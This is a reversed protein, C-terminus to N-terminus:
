RHEFRSVNHASRPSSTIGPFYQSTSTEAYEVVIAGNAGRSYRWISAGKVLTGDSNGEFSNREEWKGQLCRSVLRVDNGIAKGSDDLFSVKFEGVGQDEAIRVWRIGQRSPRALLQLFSIPVKRGDRELVGWFLYEGALNDCRSDGSQAPENQDAGTACGIAFPLICAMLLKSLLIRCRFVM